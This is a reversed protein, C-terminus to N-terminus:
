KTIKYIECYENRLQNKQIKGMANRPLCDVVIIKKPLKFRALKIQMKELLSDINISTGHIPVVVATVAEGFDPHIIGIVASEKVDKEADLVTEIEKPYVNFGGTIILDKDRGVIYVRGDPSITALDGTRFFGDKTFEEKTKEPMQWYGKFINPGIIELQGVSGDYIREGKKDVVRVQVDPLPYGVSGAIRDGILPNSTIMVAETMGYRELISQGSREFFSTFTNDLLPASGSIFLRINSCSDLTFTSEELLRTYFTPVGMFVTAKSLNDITQDTRFKPLFIMSSASLLALHIGVFLGHAHFIPLAHLLVDDSKWGWIQRLSQANTALNRHTLMAGKSLGTTGSTYLIAAIDNEDVMEVHQDIDCKNAKALLTGSRDSGLTLVQDVNHSDALLQVENKREPSCVILKPQANCIFYDLENNTYATNLPIFIIGRRLCALYLVMMEISKEVQVILRDGPKLSLSALLSAMKASAEDLEEFTLLTIGEYSIISPKNGNSAFKKKFLSYLNGM